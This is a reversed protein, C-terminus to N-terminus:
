SLIPSLELLSDTTSECGANGMQAGHSLITAKGGNGMQAGHSLITAKGGIRGGASNRADTYERAAQEDMLIDSM